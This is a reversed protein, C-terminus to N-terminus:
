LFCAVALAHVFVANELKKFRGFCITKTPTRLRVRWKKNNKDWCVNVFGSTNLPSKKGRLTNGIKERQKSPLLVGLHSCRMQKRTELSHKKGFFPNKDGPRGIKARHATSLKKGWNPHQEGRGVGDGGPTTNVLSFGLSRFAAIYNIEDQQCTVEPVRALIELTPRLGRATLSRIWNGRYCTEKTGLHQRYRKEPNESIGLYGKKPISPDSLFYIFFARM